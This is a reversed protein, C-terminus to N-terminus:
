QKGIRRPGELVRDGDWKLFGGPSSGRGADAEGDERVRRGEDESRGGREEM